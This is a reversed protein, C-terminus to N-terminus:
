PAFVMIPELAQSLSAGPRRHKELRATEQAVADSADAYM